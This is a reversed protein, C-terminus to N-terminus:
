RRYTEREVKIGKEMEALHHERVHGRVWVEYTKLCSGPKTLRDSLKGDRTFLLLGKSDLDLRGVPMWGEERAWEPLLDYVTRRGKEDSRTVVYGKPKHLMLLKGNHSPTM